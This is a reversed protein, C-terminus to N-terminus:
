SVYVIKEKREKGRYSLCSLLDHNISLFFFIAYFAFFEITKHWFKAASTTWLELYWVLYCSKDEQLNNVCFISGGGRWGWFVVVFLM